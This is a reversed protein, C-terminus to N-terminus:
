ALVDNAQGSLWVFDSSNRRRGIRRRGGRWTRGDEVVGRRWDGATCSRGVTMLRCLYLSSFNQPLDGM